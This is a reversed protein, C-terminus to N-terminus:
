SMISDIRYNLSRAREQVDKKLDDQNKLEQFYESAIHFAALIAAKTETIRDTNDRIERLKENVFQAIEQVREESEDSKILYEQDLIRVRVPKEM